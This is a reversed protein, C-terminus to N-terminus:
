RNMHVEHGHGARFILYSNVELAVEHAAVIVEVYKMEICFVAAQRDTVGVTREVVSGGLRIGDVKFSRVAIRKDCQESGVPLLLESM